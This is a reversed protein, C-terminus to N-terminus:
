DTCLVMSNDHWIVSETLPTQAPVTMSSRPEVVMDEALVVDKLLPPESSPPITTVIVAPAPTLELVTADVVAVGVPDSDEVFTLVEAPPFIVEVEVPAAPVPDAAVPDPDFVLLEVPAPAGIIVLAGQTTPPAAAANAYAAIYLQHFHQNSSEWLYIPIIYLGPIPSYIATLQILLVCAHCLIWTIYYVNSYASNSSCIL